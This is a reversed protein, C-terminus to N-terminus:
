WSVGQLRDGPSQQQMMSLAVLQKTTALETKLEALQRTNQEANPNSRDIYLGAMFGAIVLVLAAAAQAFPMNFWGMFGPSKVPQFQRERAREGQLYSEMMADFRRRLMPSPQEDPLSKMQQWLEVELRCEDCERLHDEVLKRPESSLTQQLYEPLYREIENCNM